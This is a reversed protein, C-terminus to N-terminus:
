PASPDALVSVDKDVKWPVIKGKEKVLKRPKGNKKLEPQDFQQQWIVAEPFGADAPPKSLDFPVSNIAVWFRPRAIRHAAAFVAVLRQSLIPVDQGPCYIAPMYAGIRLLEAAWAEVYAAKDPKIGGKTFEVDM